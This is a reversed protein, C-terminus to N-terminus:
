LSKICAAVSLGKRRNVVLNRPSKAGPARSSQQRSPLFLSLSFSLSFVSVFKKDRLDLIKNAIPSALTL